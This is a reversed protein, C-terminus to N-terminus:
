SSVSKSMFVRNGDRGNEAWGLHRYLAINEPIEKHTALQLERLGAAKALRDALGLLLRGIGRGGFGPSVAVNMVHMHNEASSLIITGVVQDAITAVHVIKNQIDQEIGSSVDPLDLGREDYAAYAQRITEEIASADAVVALRLQPDEASM